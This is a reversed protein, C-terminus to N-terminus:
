GENMLTYGEDFAKTPSWSDHSDEYVVFVGADSGDYTTLRSSAWAADKHIAAISADKPYLIVSGDDKGHINGLHVAHVEKHSKYRPYPRSPLVVEKSLDSMYDGINSKYDPAFEIRGVRLQNFDM